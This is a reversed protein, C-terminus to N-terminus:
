TQQRCNTASWWGQLIEAKIQSPSHLWGNCRSIRDQRARIWKPCDLVGIRRLLPPLGSFAGQRSNWSVSWNSGNRKAKLSGM